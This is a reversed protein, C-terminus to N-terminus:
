GAGAAEDKATSGSALDALGEIRRLQKDLFAMTKALDGSDDTSWVNLVQLYVAGLVRRQIRRRIQRLLSGSNGGPLDAADQLWVFSRDIRCVTMAILEPDFRADKMLRCLGPKYPAMAELRSMIMEFVRDKPPLDELDAADVGLMAQDLRQNLADLLGARGSFTGRVEPMSLNARDALATFSFGRWGTEAIIDFALALLDPSSERGSKAKAAPM